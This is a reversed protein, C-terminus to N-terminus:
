SRNIYCACGNLPPRASLARRASPACPYTVMTHLRDAERVIRWYSQIGMLGCGAHLLLLSALVAHRWSRWGRPGSRALERLWFLVAAFILIFTAAYPSWLFNGALLSTREALTYAYFAGIFFSAWALLMATDTRARNWHLLTAALPFAVSLLCKMILDSSYHRMVAMPAWIITDHYESSVAKAAFTQSFQWGLVLVAPILMCLALGTISIDKRWLLRVLAIAGAAPALCILFSPKSLAGAVTAAASIACLAPDLRRRNALSWAACLFATVSFPKALASPPNDFQTPWFFGIEYENRFDLPQAVLIALACLALVWPRGLWAHDRFAWYLLGYLLLATSWYCALLVVMEAAPFSSVLGSHYTAVTLLPFLFHSKPRIGTRNWEVAMQVYAKTDSQHSIMGWAIRGYLVGVVLLMALAALIHGRYKPM